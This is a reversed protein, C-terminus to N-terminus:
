AQKSLNLCVYARYKTTLTIMCRLRQSSFQSATKHHPKGSFTSTLECRYM